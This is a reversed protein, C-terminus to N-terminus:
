GERREKVVKKVLFIPLVITAILAGAWVLITALLWTSLGTIEMGGVFVNTVLLGVFTTVLAVGGKLAPLNKESMNEILPGAIVMVLSLLLAAFVFGPTTFSFSEGLLMSAVFLGVAHALVYVAASILTRVM